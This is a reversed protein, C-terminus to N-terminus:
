VLCSDYCIDKNRIATEISKGNVSWGLFDYLFKYLYKKTTMSYDWDRGVTVREAGQKDNDIICIVSNYSQFAIKNGDTIIFQNAVERGSRESTMNKVKM